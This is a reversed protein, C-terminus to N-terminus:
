FFITEPGFLVAVEVRARWRLEPALGPALRIPRRYECVISRFTTGTTIACDGAHVFPALGLEEVERMLRAQVALDDHIPIRAIERLRDQFRFHAAYPPLVCSALWGLAIAVFLWLPSRLRRVTGHGGAAAEHLADVAAWAAGAGRQMPGRTLAVESRVTALRCRDVIERSEPRVSLFAPDLDLAKEFCAMAEAVRGSAQLALGLDHHPEPAGPELRVANRLGQLAPATDGLIWSVIGRHRVPEGSAPAARCAAEAARRAEAERGLLALAVAHRSLAEARRPEIALAAAFAAEAEGVHESELLVAGVSSLYEANAPDRVSAARMEAAAAELRGARLLAEGLMFRYDPEHPHAEAAARFATIAEDAPEELLTRRPAIAFPLLERAM